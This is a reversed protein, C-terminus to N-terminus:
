KLIWMQGNIDDNGSFQNTLAAKYNVTNASQESSPYKFRLAIRNSNGTGSGTTFAPVGTRRYTYYSELGSQRFLGLYKQQLIQTLGTANNGAYKVSGQAYYANYDFPITRNDYNSANTVDTSGPRYFSATFSGGTVPIGYFALSATIGKQYWDEANATIWGRNAAEAINFCMEVYGLQIGPEATYGSYYRKRNLFSYKGLGADNYMVGLDLGPDAGKFSAFSTDKQGQNDVYYRAPEAVVFVRPDNLQTLLGIHTLSMNRRSGNFGFNGANDPYFNTPTVYNFQLNDGSGSFIPYQVQNNYIAAFQQPINLDADTAVKKSLNILLRLKFSNVAKQWKKLDNNFYIDGSLTNDGKGTLAIINSNATDLLALAKQFVVKQADYAPSLNDVGLLAQTMPIDGMQLSMKTFLYARLFKGLASYANLSPNGARLAAEEMKIVNQLTGYLNSGSGFDYRNNGYYDYNYLYYQGYIEASGGPDDHMSVLVGNLLLSPPVATPKNPNQNLDSFSKTCGAGMLGILIFLPLINKIKKM